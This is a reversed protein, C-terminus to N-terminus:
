KNQSELIFALIIAGVTLVCGTWGLLEEGIM